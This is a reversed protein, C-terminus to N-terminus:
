SNKSVSQETPKKVRADILECMYFAEKADQKKSNMVPYVIKYEKVPKKMNKRRNCEWDWKEDNVPKETVDEGIVEGIIRIMEEHIEM